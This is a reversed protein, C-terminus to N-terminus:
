LGLKEARRFIAILVQKEPSNAAQPGLSELHQLLMTASPLVSKISHKDWDSPHKGQEQQRVIELIKLARQIPAQPPTQPQSQPQSQPQPGREDQVRQQRAIEFAKQRLQPNLRLGAAAASDLGAQEVLSILIGEASKRLQKDADSQIKLKAVEIKAAADDRELKTTVIRRDLEGKTGIFHIMRTGVSNEFEENMKAGPPLNDEPLKDVASMVIMGRRAEMPAVLALQEEISLNPDNWISTIENMLERRIIKQPEDHVMKQGDAEARGQANGLSTAKAKQTRFWQLAQVPTLGSPALQLARDFESVTGGGGTSRADIRQQEQLRGGLVDAAGTFDQAGIRGGIQAGTVANALSPGVVSGAGAAGGAGAAIGPFAFGGVVGGIIAGTLQKDKAEDELGKQHEIADKRMAADLAAALFAERNRRQFDAPASINFAM